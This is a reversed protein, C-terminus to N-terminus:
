FLICTNLYFFFFPSVEVKFQLERFNISMNVHIRLMTEDVAFAYVALSRNDMMHFDLRDSVIFCLKKWATTTDTKTYVSASCPFLKIPIPFLMGCFLLQVAM